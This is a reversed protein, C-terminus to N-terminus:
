DAPWPNSVPVAVEAVGRQSARFSTNVRAVGRQSAWISTNVKAV